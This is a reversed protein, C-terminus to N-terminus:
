TQPVNEPKMPGKFCSKAAEKRHSGHRLGRRTSTRRKQYIREIEKTLNDEEVQIWSSLELIGGPGARPREGERWAILCNEGHPPKSKQKFM